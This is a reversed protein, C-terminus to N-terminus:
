AFADIGTIHKGLVLTHINDTGEYTYVSELNTMHRIVHYELSIGNAGLMNRASRAIALAQRCANLKAMSVMTHTAKGADKLRGLQLNLCQAKVIETLMDALDKQILQFSAIAQKFQKRELAYQRAIDFCAMAAGTAGWAIGYRAQTLCNLAAVLGKDSGPLLNEQPVFCNAFVLEGTASARLSMKHTIDLRKFGTFDKEVIFGRIGNDTQAWVIALDAFPANTIWMKSGNLQWGGDVQRATTRMHAPDSGADPETLGFCGILEGRAMAPLFRQKQADNGYAFIPFMCLSNQVSVFSRLGSDGAELEQCALGYSVANAGSGGYQEPLTMGLLGLDAVEKIFQLPFQAKEYAQVMEPVVADTVFRAVTDRVLKEEATLQEDLLLFDEM